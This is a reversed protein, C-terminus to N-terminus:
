MQITNRSMVFYIPIVVIDSNLVLNQLGLKQRIANLCIKYSKLNADEIKIVFMFVNLYTRM